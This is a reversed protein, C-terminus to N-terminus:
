VSSCLICTCPESIPAEPVESQPLAELTWFPRRPSSGLIMKILASRPVCITNQLMCCIIYVYPYVLCLDELNHSSVCSHLSREGLELQLDARSEKGNRPSNRAKGDPGRKSHADSRVSKAETKSVKLHTQTEVVHYDTL